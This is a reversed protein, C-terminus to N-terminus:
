KEEMRNMGQDIVARLTEPIESVAIKGTGASHTFSVVEWWAGTTTFHYPGYFQPTGGKLQIQVTADSYADQDMSFCKVKVVYVGPIATVATFTEPGFGQTDDIDLSGDSIAKRGYYSEEGDPNWVHLDLDSTPSNWTLTIEVDPGTFDGYVLVEDSLGTNGNEGTARLHIRNEGSSISLVVDFGNATVSVEREVGNLILIAKDGTFPSPTTALSDQVQITGTVHIVNDAFRASDAPATINIFPRPFGPVTLDAQVTKPVGQELTFDANYENYGTKYLRIQHVGAKVGPLSAPTVVNMNTGDLYVVAGPPNSEVVLSNGGSWAEVTVQVEPVSEEGGVADAEGSYWIVDGDLFGLVIRNLGIVGTVTGSAYGNKIELTQNSVVRMYNNYFGEWEAWTKTTEFSGHKISHFEQGEPTAIFAQWTQYRSLDLVMVRVNNVAEADGPKAFDAPDVSKGYEVNIRFVARGSEPATAHKACGMCLLLVAAIVIGVTKGIRKDM